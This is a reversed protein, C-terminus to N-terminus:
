RLSQDVNIAALLAKASSSLHKQAAIMELTMWKSVEYKNKFTDPCGSHIKGRYKIDYVISRTLTNADENDVISIASLLEFEGEIQKLIDGIYYMPDSDDPIMMIPLTWLGNAFQRMLTCSRTSNHVRIAFMKM